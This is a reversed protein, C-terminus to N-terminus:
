LDCCETANGYKSQSKVHVPMNQNNDDSLLVQVGQGTIAKLLSTDMDDFNIEGIKKTYRNLIFKM